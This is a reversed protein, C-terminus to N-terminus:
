KPNWSTPEVTLLWLSLCLPRETDMEKEVVKNEKHERRGMVHTASQCKCYIKCGFLQYICSQCMTYNWKLLIEKQNEIRDLNKM